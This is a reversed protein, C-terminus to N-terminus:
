LVLVTTHIIAALAVNGNLQHTLQKPLRKYQVLIQGSDARHYYCRGSTPRTGACWAMRHINRYPLWNGGGCTVRYQLKHGRIPITPSIVCEAPGLRVTGSSCEFYRVKVITDESFPLEVGTDPRSEMNETIIGSGLGVWDLKAIEPGVM